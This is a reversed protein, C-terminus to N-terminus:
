QLHQISDGDCYEFKKLHNILFHLRTNYQSRSYDNSLRRKREKLNFPPPKQCRQTMLGRNVRSTRMAPEAFLFLVQSISYFILFLISQTQGHKMFTDLPFIGRLKLFGWETLASFWLQDYLLSPVLISKSHKFLLM